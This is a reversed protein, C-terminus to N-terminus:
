AMGKLLADAAAAAKKRATPSDRLTQPKCLLAKLEQEMRTLEPDDTINLGSLVNVLDVANEMSSDFIRGKEKGCQESIRGVVERIRAYVDRMAKGQRANVAKSIDDQIEKRDEISVDVRFDSADPVPMIELDISFKSRLDAGQPYDDPQFMTNLRSRAKNVLDPYLVLFESVLQAYQGKFKRIEASYEMFLKSPLLRQNNDSWPLTRSYHYTRVAGALKSIPELFSKDILAKNYRGANTAAHAKEVELSISKDHKTATWQSISLNVLMAKAQIM